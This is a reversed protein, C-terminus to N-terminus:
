FFERWVAIKRVGVGKIRQLEPFSGFDGNKQRNEEIRAAMKPGAGPLFEWDKQSMRDPHLPIGLAVRQSATMWLFSISQIEGGQVILDIRQGSEISVPELCIKEADHTISLHTLKIVDCHTTDDNFQRVMGSESFGRGLQVWVGTSERLLAPEGSDHAFRSWNLGVVILTLGLITVTSFTNM